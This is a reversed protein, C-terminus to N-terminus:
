SSTPQYGHKMWTLSVILYAEIIKM